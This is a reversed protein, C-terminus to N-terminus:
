ELDKIQNKFNRYDELFEDFRRKYEIFLSIARELYEGAEISDSRSSELGSEISGVRDEISQIGTVLRDAIESLQYNQEKLRGLEESHQIIASGPVDPQTRCGTSFLCVFM